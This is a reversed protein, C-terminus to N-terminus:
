FKKRVWELVPGEYIIYIFKALWYSVFSVALFGLVFFFFIYFVSYEPDAYSMGLSILFGVPATFLFHNFYMGYSYKGVKSLLAELRKFNVVIFSLLLSVIIVIFVVYQQIAPGDVFITVVCTLAYIAWQFGTLGTEETKGKVARLFRSVLIGSMFWFPSTLLASVMAGWSSNYNLWLAVVQMTFLGLLPITASKKQNIYPFLVYHYVETQISWGGPVFLNWMRYSFWGLFVTNLLLMGINEWSTPPVSTGYVYGMIDTGGPFAWSLGMWAVIMAIINWLLWAPFLRGLRRAFYKKSNFNSRYLYDLLFGSLFFFLGVGASGFQLVRFIGWWEEPTYRFGGTFDTFSMVHVGIVLLIAFARLVDIVMSVKTENNSFSAIKNKIGDVFMTFGDSCLM